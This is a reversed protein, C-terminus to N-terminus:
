IDNLVKEMSFNNLLIGDRCVDNKKLTEFGMKEFFPKALWSAETFLKEIGESLAVQEVHHYLKTAIGQRQHDKHVYLRDVHGNSEFGLFGLVKENSILLYPKFLNLYNIWANYDPPTPSWAELQVADYYQKGVEHVSGQYLEIVEMAKDSTYEMIEM